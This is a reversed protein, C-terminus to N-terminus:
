PALKALVVDYGGDCVLSASGINVTGSFNGALLTNGHGDMAVSVGVQDNGNGFGKSWLHEGSADLKAAFIDAGGASVLQGGGFDVTGSFYGTVVVNGAHDTAVSNASEASKDGFLKSWVHKGNTDLKAVFMDGPGKIPGGGLDAAGSFQGAFVISESSGVAVSTANQDSADGFRRSWLHKGDEARLKAIFIDSGGASTLFGNGFDVGGNFYGAVLVNGMSDVAVSSASQVSADGFRKSWLHKGDEARLKAVFIDAGGASTLPGGGFDVVGNFGGALLVDGSSDVAISTAGQASADGFSKSWLHKGDARLKAIFIDTGGNSTLPGGGFDIVGDFYGAILVNGMSDVAVGGPGQSGADGFSKSWLYKGDENLKALFVDFGGSCLLLGGGFDIAGSFFGAVIVNGDVDVTL